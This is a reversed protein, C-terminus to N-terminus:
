VEDAVFEIFEFYHGRPALFLAVAPITQAIKDIFKFCELFNPRLYVKDGPYFLYLNFSEASVGHIPPVIVVGV